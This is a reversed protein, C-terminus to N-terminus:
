ASTGVIVIKYTAVNSGDNNVIKLIDGTTATVPYGTVDPAYISLFGGNRVTVKDTVDAFWLPAAATAHGGLTVSSSTTDTTLEFYFYKVKVFTITSGFVDILSGALDLNLTAGAALTTQNIYLRDAQNAIVGNSLSGTFTFSSAQSTSDGFNETKTFTWLVKNTINDISLTTSM